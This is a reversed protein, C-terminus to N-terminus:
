ELKCLNSVIFLQVVCFFVFFFRFSVFSNNYMCTTCVHIQIYTGCIYAGLPGSASRVDVQCSLFTSLFFITSNNDIGM